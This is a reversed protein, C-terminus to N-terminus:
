KTDDGDVARTEAAAADVIREPDFVRTQDGATELVAKVLRRDDSSLDTRDAPPHIADVSVTTIQDVGDVLLGSTQGAAGRDFLLLATDADPDRDSAGVLVRGDIAATVDGGVGTTGAVIPPAQPVRTMDPNRVLQAVAGLELAYSVGDIRFRVFEVHAPPGDSASEPATDADSGSM